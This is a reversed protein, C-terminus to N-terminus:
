CNNGEHACKARIDWVEGFYLSLRQQVSYTGISRIGEEPLHRSMITQVQIENM